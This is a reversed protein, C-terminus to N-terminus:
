AKGESDYASAVLWSIVCYSATRFTTGHVEGTCSFGSTSQLLLIFYLLLHIHFAENARATSTLLALSKNYINYRLAM